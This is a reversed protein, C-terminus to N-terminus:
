RAEDLKNTLENAMREADELISCTENIRKPDGSLAYAARIMAEVQLALTHNEDAQTM